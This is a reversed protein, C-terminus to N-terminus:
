LLRMEKDSNERATQEFTRFFYDTKFIREMALFHMLVKKRGLRYIMNPYIAYEKRVNRGYEAYIEWPSGLISLDADTFYDTDPDINPAHKKTALIQSQCADIMPKPLSLQQMCRAARDASQEENDSQLVDYVIDHYYLSFLVTDWAKIETKVATLQLLVSELHTLTHYHRNKESYKQEIENWLEAILAQNDTYRVLLETFTKQLLM